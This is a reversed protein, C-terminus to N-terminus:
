GNEVDFKEKKVLHIDNIQMRKDVAKCMDYVTLLAVSVATLAEMEVGTRGICKVEANASIGQDDLSLTVDIYDLILPHCLPILRPTLKAAQIGALQATGLVDGKKMQNERIRSIAEASLAIVGAAQAQRQQLSKPGVDVMKARGQDDVHSLKAM